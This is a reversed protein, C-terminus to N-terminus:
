FSDANIPDGRLPLVKAAALGIVIVKVILPLTPSTLLRLKLESRRM